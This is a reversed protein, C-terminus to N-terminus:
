RDVGYKTETTDEQAEKPRLPTRGPVKTLYGSALLEKLVKTRCGRCYREKFVPPREKCRECLKSM